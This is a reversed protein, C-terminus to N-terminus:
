NMPHRVDTKGHAALQRRPRQRDDRGLILLVEPGGRAAVEVDHDVFGLGTLPGELPRHPGQAAGRLRFLVLPRAPSPVAIAHRAGATTLIAMM